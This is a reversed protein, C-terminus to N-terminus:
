VLLLLSSCLHDSFLLSCIFTCFLQILYTYSLATGHLVACYVLANCYFLVNCYLMTYYLVTCCACLVALVCCLLCVVCCACLVALVCCLLCVVRGDGCGRGLGVGSLAVWGMGAYSAWFM